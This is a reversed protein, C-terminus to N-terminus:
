IFSEHTIAKRMDRMLKDDLGFKAVSTHVCLSFICVFLVLLQTYRFLIKDYDCESFWNKQEVCCWCKIKTIYYRQWKPFNWLSLNAMTCWILPFLITSKWRILGIWSLLCLTTGSSNIIWLFSRYIQERVNMWEYFCGSWISVLFQYLYYLLFTTWKQNM